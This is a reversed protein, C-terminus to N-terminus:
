IGAKYAETIGPFSKWAEWASKKERGFFESTTDCGTFSHFAPLAICKEKRLTSCVSNIHVYRLHKRTGFAVWIDSGPHQELLVHLKGALIVIVVTDVTRVLCTTAGNAITDLLHVLMRTDAEEHNCSEMHHDTGRAIVSTGSITFVQKRERCMMLEIKHSLVNFLEQKNTADRLFDLRDSRFKKKGALKRGMGKGRKEWTSEKISCTVYFDWVVDVREATDLQRNIYPIFVDTAYDDFTTISNTQFLHVIAASDLVKFDFSVVKDNGEPM